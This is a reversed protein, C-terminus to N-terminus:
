HVLGPLWTAISPFIMLLVTALIMAVIFPICGKFVTHLPISKDMGNVVYACIGVPPTVVGIQTVLVIIVGFWIPDYGLGLVVPYFIPVTLMLLALADLFCGGIIYFLIIFSLITWGPLPLAALWDALAMPIQTRALFRGFVIAGAVIIMVMCTTRATEQISQAIIRWSIQRRIAAIGLTAAAGVAAGETPTFYGLLMGGM